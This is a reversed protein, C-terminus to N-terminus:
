PTYLYIRLSGRTCTVLDTGACRVTSRKKTSPSVVRLRARQEPTAARYRQRVAEAFSCAGRGDRRSVASRTPHGSLGERAPCPV